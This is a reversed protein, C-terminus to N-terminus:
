GSRIDLEIGEDVGYISDHPTKTASRLSEIVTVFEDVGVHSPGTHRGRTVAGHGAAELEQKRQWDVRAM